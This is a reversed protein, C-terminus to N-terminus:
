WNRREKPTKPPIDEDSMKVGLRDAMPWQNQLRRAKAVPTAHEAPPIPPITKESMM